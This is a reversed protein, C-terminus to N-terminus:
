FVYNQPCIANIQVPAVVAKDSFRGSVACGYLDNNIGFIDRRDIQGREVLRAYGLSFLCIAYFLLGSRCETHMKAATM